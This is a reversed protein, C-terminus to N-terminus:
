FQGAENTVAVLSDGHHNGSPYGLVPINPLPHGARDKVTGHVVGGEQLDVVGLDLSQGAAVDIGPLRLPVFQKKGQSIEAPTLPEFAEFVVDYKGPNAAIVFNGDADVIPQNAQYSGGSFWPNAQAQISFNSSLYQDFNRSTVLTLSSKLRLKGRIQAPQLLDVFLPDPSAGSVIVRVNKSSFAKPYQDDEASLVYDGDPIRSITFDVSGASIDVAQESVVTGATNKLRLMVPRGAPVQASGIRITGKVDYGDIVGLTQGTADATAVRVVLTAEAIEPGNTFNGDM